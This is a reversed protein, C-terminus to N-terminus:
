KAKCYTAPRFLVPDSNLKRVMRLFSLFNLGSSETGGFELFLEKAREERGTIRLGLKKLLFEIEHRQLDRSGDMDVQRYVVRLEDVEAKPIDLEAATEKIEHEMEDYKKKEILAMFWLFKDFTWGRPSALQDIDRLWEAYTDQEEKSRPRINRLTMLKQMERVNLLGNGEKDLEKFEVLYSTPDRLYKSILLERRELLIKAEGESEVSNEQTAGDVTGDENTIPRKKAMPRAKSENEVAEPLEELNGYITTRQRKHVERRARRPSEKLPNFFEHDRPFSARVPPPPWPKNFSQKPASVLGYKLAREPNEAVMRGLVTNVSVARMRRRADDLASVRGAAGANNGKGASASAAVRQRLRASRGAVGAMQQEAMCPTPSGGHTTHGESKTDGLNAGTENTRTLEASKARPHSQASPIGLRKGLNVRRTPSEQKAAFADTTM